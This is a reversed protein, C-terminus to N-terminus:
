RIIARDDGRAGGVQCALQFDALWLEPKTEGNYKAISTLLCRRATSREASCALAQRNRPWGTRTATTDDAATPATVTSTQMGMDIAVINTSTMDHTMDGNFLSPTTKSLRQGREELPHKSISRCRRKMKSRSTM